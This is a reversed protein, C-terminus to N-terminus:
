AALTQRVHDMLPKLTAGDFAFRIGAAEFLKPLPKSSGLALAQRYEQITQEQNRLYNSWLQLAGLQAIGYEVYYLPVCFLHLQRVWSYERWEPCESWDLEDGFRADLELWHQRREDRTHGPHTYIWHQFADIRAIWPLLIIIDELHRVKARRAEDANYFSTLRESAMMEMGMSAVECFEIPADRYAFLPENRYALAHFAHGGEHLLTFVDQNRGAANMFIFPLRAEDLTSQYGGPAKGKRSDLDLLNRERLVGFEKSLAPSVARFIKDTGEILQEATEFPRLPPHGQPDVDLDWPALNDLGLQQARTRRLQRRVPMVEQEIAAHFRQCDAPSYDFRGLRQFQYDLFNDFGANRATQQRLKLMEEFIDEVKVRDQLQRRVSATWAARRKERDTEELYKSLQPLTQERGEFEVMQEGCIKQYQQRLLDDQTQLPINEERFLKVENERARDFVFFREKPLQKRAPSGLYKKSLEFQRPEVKPSIEQVFQLYAQELAPDDTHCTMAIYRATGEEAIAASLESLDDLWKELSARESIDRQQLQDFYQELTPWDGLDANADVFHRPFETHTRHAALETM